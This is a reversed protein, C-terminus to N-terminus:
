EQRSLCNVQRHLHVAASHHLLSELVHVSLAEHGEHGFELTGGHKETAHVVGVAVVHDLLADLDNGSDGVVGTLM